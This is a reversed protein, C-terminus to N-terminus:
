YKNCLKKIININALTYYVYPNVVCLYSKGLSGGFLKLLDLGAGLVQVHFMINDEYTLM